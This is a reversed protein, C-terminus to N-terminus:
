VLNDSYAKTMEATRTSELKSLFDVYRRRYVKGYLDTTEPKKHGLHRQRIDRPVGWDEFLSEVTHRVAHPHATFQEETFEGGFIPFRTNLSEFLSDLGNVTLPGGDRNTLFMHHSTNGSRKWKDILLSRSRVWNQWAVIIRPDWGIFITRPGTKATGLRQTENRPRLCVWLDEGYFRIDEDMILPVESRRMGSGLMLAWLMQQRHFWARKDKYTQQAAKWNVSKRSSWGRKPGFPHESLIFPKKPRAESTLYSWIAEVENPEFVHNFKLKRRGRPVGINFYDPLAKSANQWQSKTRYSHRCAESQILGWWACLFGVEGLMHSARAYHLPRTPNNDIGTESQRVRWFLENRFHLIFPKLTGETFDFFNLGNRELFRFFPVLSYAKDALTADELMLNSRLYNNAAIVPHPGDWLEYVTREWFPCYTRIVQIGSGM